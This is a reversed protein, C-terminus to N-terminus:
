PDEEERCGRKLDRKRRTAAKARLRDAFASLLRKMVGGNESGMALSSGQVTTGDLASSAGPRTSGVYQRM